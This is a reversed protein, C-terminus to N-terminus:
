ELDALRNLEENKRILMLTDDETLRETPHPNIRFEEGRKIGVLTIGYTARLNVQLIDKGVWAKPVKRDVMSYEESLEVADFFNGLMLNKALRIGTEQEPFVVKDVGIKRLVKAHLETQARAMVFPVGLEKMQISLLINSELNEGIGIIVGDMHHLGLSKLLEADMANTCVAHTVKDAIEQVKEPDVDVALVEAGQEALTIAMSEGFRGLGFVAFIKKRAM